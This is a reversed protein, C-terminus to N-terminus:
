AARAGDRRRRMQQLVEIAKNYMESSLWYRMVRTPQQNWGPVLEPKEKYIIDYRNKLASMTSHLCHDNVIREAEFRNLSQGTLLYALVREIKTPVKNQPQKVQSM